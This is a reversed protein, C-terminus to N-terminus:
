VIALLTRERARFDVSGHMRKLLMALTCPPIRQSSILVELFDKRGLTKIINTNIFAHQYAM